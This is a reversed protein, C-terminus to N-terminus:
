RYWPWSHARGPTTQYSRRRPDGTGFPLTGRHDSPRPKAITPLAPQPKSNDAVRSRSPFHRFTATWWRSRGQEQGSIRTTGIVDAFSVMHNGPRQQSSKPSAAPAPSNCRRMGKKTARAPSFHRQSGGKKATERIQLFLAQCIAKATTSKAM